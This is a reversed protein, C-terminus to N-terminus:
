DCGRRGGTRLERPTAPPWEPASRDVVDGWEEVPQVSESALFVFNSGNLSFAESLASKVMLRNTEVCLFWAGIAIDQFQVEPAVTFTLSHM